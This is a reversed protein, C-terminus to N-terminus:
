GSSDSEVHLGGLVIYLFGAELFRVGSVQCWFGTVLMWCGAVLMWYGAVLLWCGADAGEDHRNKEGVGAAGVLTDKAILDRNGTAPLPGDLRILNARLNM